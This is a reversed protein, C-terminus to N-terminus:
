GEGVVDSPLINAEVDIINDKSEKLKRKGEEIQELMNYISNAGAITILVVAIFTVIDTLQQIYFYIWFAFFIDMAIALVRNFTHKDETGLAVKFGDIVNTAIISAILALAITELIVIFLNEMLEGKSLFASKIGKKTTKECNKFSFICNQM